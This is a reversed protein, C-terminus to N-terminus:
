CERLQLIGIGKQRYRVKVKCGKEKCHDLLVICKSRAFTQFYRSHAPGNSPGVMRPPPPFYYDLVKGTSLYGFGESFILVALAMKQIEGPM